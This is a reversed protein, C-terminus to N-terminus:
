NQTRHGERRIGLDFLVGQGSFGLKRGVFAQLRAIQGPLLSRELRGVEVEGLEDALRPVRHRIGAGVNMGRRGDQQAHVKRIDARHSRADIPLGPFVHATRPDPHVQLFAPVADQQLDRVALGQGGAHCIPVRHRHEM